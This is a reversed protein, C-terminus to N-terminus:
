SWVTGSTVTVEPVVDTDARSFGPPGAEGM